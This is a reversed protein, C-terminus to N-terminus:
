NIVENLSRYVFIVPDCSCVALSYRSLFIVAIQLHGVTKPFALVACATLMSNGAWYSISHEELSSMVSIKGTWYKTSGDWVVMPHSIHPYLPPSNPFFFVLSLESKWGCAAGCYGLHRSGLPSTWQLFWRNHNGTRGFFLLFATHHLHQVFVSVAEATDM